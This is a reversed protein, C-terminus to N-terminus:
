GLIHNIEKVTDKLFDSINVRSLTFNTLKKRKHNTSQTRALFEVSERLDCFNNEINLELFQITYTKCKLRQHM